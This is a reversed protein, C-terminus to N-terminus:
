GRLETLAQSITESVEESITDYLAKRVRRITDKKSEGDKPEVDDEVGIGIKVPEFQQALKTVEVYVNVKMIGEM